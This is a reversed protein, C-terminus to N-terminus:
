EDDDDSGYFSWIRLVDDFRDDGFHNNHGAPTTLFCAFELSVNYEQRFKPQALLAWLIRLFTEDDFRELSMRKKLEINVTLRSEVNDFSIDFEEIRTFVEKMLKKAESGIPEFRKLNLQSIWENDTAEPTPSPMFSEITQNVTAMEEDIKKLRPTVHANFNRSMLMLDTIDDNPLFNTINYFIENPLSSMILYSNTPNTAIPIYTGDSTRINLNRTLFMLDTVDDNPLFNTMDSFIENPLSSMTFHSM